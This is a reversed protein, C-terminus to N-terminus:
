LFPGGSPPAYDGPSDFDAAFFPPRGFFSFVFVSTFLVVLLFNTGCRAHIRSHGTVNDVTLEQGSEYCNITKHEAGHYAFVRKIDDM